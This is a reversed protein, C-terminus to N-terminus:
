LKPPWLPPRRAHFAKTLVGLVTEESASKPCLAPPNKLLPDAQEKGGPQLLSISNAQRWLLLTDLIAM